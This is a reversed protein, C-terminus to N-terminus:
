SQVVKPQRDNNDHLVSKLKNYEANRNLYQQQEEPSKSKLWQNVAYIKSENLYSKAIEAHESLIIDNLYANYNLYADLESDLNLNSQISFIHNASQKCIEEDTEDLYLEYPNACLKHFYKKSHNKGGYNKHNWKKSYPQQFNSNFQSKNDRRHKYKNGQKNDLWKESSRGPCNSTLSDVNLNLEGLSKRTSNYSDAANWKNSPCSANKRESKISLHTRLSNELEIIDSEKM